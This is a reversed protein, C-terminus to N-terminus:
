RTAVREGLRPDARLDRAGLRALPAACTTGCAAAPENGRRARSSDNLVPGENMLWPLWQPEGDAWSVGIAGPYPRFRKPPLLLGQNASTPFNWDIISENYDGIGASLRAYDYRTSQLACGSTLVLALTAVWFPHFRFRM